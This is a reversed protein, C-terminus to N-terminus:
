SHPKLKKPSTPSCRRFHGADLTKTTGEGGEVGWPGSPFPCPLHECSRSVRPVTVLVIRLAACREPHALHPAPAPQDAICYWDRQVPCSRTLSLSLSRALSLSRSLSLSLSRALSRALSHTHSLPVQDDSLGQAQALQSVIAM